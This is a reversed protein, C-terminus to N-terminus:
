CSSSVGRRNQAGQLIQVPLKIGKRSVNQGKKQQQTKKGRLYGSCQGVLFFIHPFQMFISITAYFEATRVFVSEGIGVENWGQARFAVQATKDDFYDKLIQLSAKM